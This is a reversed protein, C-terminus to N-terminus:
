HHLLKLTTYLPSQDRTGLLPIDDTSLKKDYLNSREVWRKRQKAQIGLIRSM